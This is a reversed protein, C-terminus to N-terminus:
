EPLGVFVGMRRYYVPRILSDTAFPMEPMLIVASGYPLEYEMVRMELLGSETEPFPYGAADGANLLITRQRSPIELRRAVDALTTEHNIFRFEVPLRATPIEMQLFARLLRRNEDWLM